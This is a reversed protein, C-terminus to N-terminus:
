LTHRQEDTTNASTISCLQLGAPSVFVNQPRYKRKEKVQMIRSEPTSGDSSCRPFFIHINIAPKESYSHISCCGFSSITAKKELFLCNELGESLVDLVVNLEAVMNRTSMIHVRGVPMQFESWIIRNYRNRKRLPFFHLEIQWSFAVSFEM